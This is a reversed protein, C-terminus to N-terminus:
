PAENLNAEAYVEPLGATRKEGEATLYHTGTLRAEFHNRVRAQLEDSLGVYDVQEALQPAHKLYFDVFRKTEPRKLADLNVYIFLPRSFPVYVGNEVTEATPAVAEGTQPNVISVAKVQDRNNFYYSAGFYGIAYKDRAVGTVLVNDDENTSAEKRMVVDEPKEGDQAMVERFYDFTGSQHGPSYVHIERDPWGPDLENWKQAAADERYVQRLQEVTLQKAWDNEPHVVITLGDYAVPLELFRVGNRQCLDYEDKKIPRSADTIDLSGQLFRKFGGGTGSIGVTVKVQPYEKGFEGAAARSIPAVTSSGDIAVEGQLASAASDVGSGNDTADRPESQQNCGVGILLGLACMTPGAYAPLWGKPRRM